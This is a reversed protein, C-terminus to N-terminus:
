KITELFKRGAETLRYGVRWHGFGSGPDKDILGREALIDGTRQKGIPFYWYEKPGHPHEEVLERMLSIQAKSPAKM